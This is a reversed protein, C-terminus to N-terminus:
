CTVATYLIRPCGRRWIFLLFAALLCEATNARMPYAEPPVLVLLYFYGEETMPLPGVPDAVVEETPQVTQDIEVDRTVAASM